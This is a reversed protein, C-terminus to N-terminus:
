KVKIKILLFRTAQTREFTPNELSLVVFIHTFNSLAPRNIYSKRPEITKIVATSANLDVADLAVLDGVSVFSGKGNISIM